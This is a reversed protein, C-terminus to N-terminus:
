QGYIASREHISSAEGQHLRLQERLGKCPDKGGPTCVDKVKEILGSLSGSLSSSSSGSAIGLAADLDSNGTSEGSQNQGGAGSLLGGLAGARSANGLLGTLGRPDVYSM